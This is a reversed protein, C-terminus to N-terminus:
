FCMDKYNDKVEVYDYDGFDIPKGFDGGPLTWQFPDYTQRRKAPLWVSKAGRRRLYDLSMQLKERSLHILSKTSGLNLCKNTWKENAHHMLVCFKKGSPATLQTLGFPCEYVKSLTYYSCKELKTNDEWQGQELCMREIPHFSSNLCSPTSNASSGSSGEQWHLKIGSDMTVDNKCNEVCFILKRTTIIIIM